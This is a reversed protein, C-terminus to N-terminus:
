PFVRLDTPVAARTDRDDAHHEARSSHLDAFPGCRELPCVLDGTRQELRLRASTLRVACTSVEGGNRLQWLVTPTDAFSTM